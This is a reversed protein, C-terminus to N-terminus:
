CRFGERLALAMVHLHAAATLIEIDTENLYLVLPRNATICVVSNFTGQKSCCLQNMQTFINFICLIILFFFGMVTFRISFCAM